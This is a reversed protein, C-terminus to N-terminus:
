SREAGSPTYERSTARRGAATSRPRPRGGRAGARRGHREGRRIRIAPGASRSPSALAHQADLRHGARRRDRWSGRALPGSRKPSPARGAGTRRRHVPSRRHAPRRGAFVREPGIRGSLLGLALSSYCLISIGHTPASRCAARGRHERDVMSYSSRSRTSSGPPPSLGRPRGASVNSAGIARIKGARRLDELAAMTEAVPTTPDQWHTIYIDIVDTGLRRLSADLEHEISERGSTATCRRAAEADFFHRGRDTHWVLGCKTALVCRTAGARRDGPRRDGRLTRARLRPRHRHADRGRRHLGPDRSPAPRTPAEGCGAGSPGPASASPRPRSAPPVSRDRMQMATMGARADDHRPHGARDAEDLVLTKLHRRAACRLDTRGQQPRRRRRPHSARTSLPMSPASRARRM